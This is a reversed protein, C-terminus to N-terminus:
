EGQNENKGRVIECVIERDQPYPSLDGWILRLSPPANELHLLPRLGPAMRATSREDTVLYWAAPCTRLAACACQVACLCAVSAEVRLDREENESPGFPGMGAFLLSYPGIKVPLVDGPIQIM